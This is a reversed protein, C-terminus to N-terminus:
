GDQSWRLYSNKNISKNYKSIKTKIEEKPKSKNKEKKEKYGIDELIKNAKNEM